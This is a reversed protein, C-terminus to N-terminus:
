GERSCRQISREDHITLRAIACEESQMGHDAFRIEISTLLQSDHVSMSSATTDEAKGSLMNRWHASISSGRRHTM